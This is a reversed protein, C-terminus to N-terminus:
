IQYNSMFHVLDITSLFAGLSSHRSKVCAQCISATSVYFPSLLKQTFESYESNKLQTSLPSSTRKFLEHLTLSIACDISVRPLQQKVRIIDEMTGSLMDLPLRGEFGRLRFLLLCIITDIFLISKLNRKEFIM